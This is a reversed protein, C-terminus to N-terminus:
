NLNDSDTQWMGWVIYKYGLFFIEQMHNAVCPQDIGSMSLRSNTDSLFCNESVTYM